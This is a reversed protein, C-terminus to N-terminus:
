RTLEKASTPKRRKDKEEQQKREYKERLNRFLEEMEKNSAMREYNRLEDIDDQLKWKKRPIKFM